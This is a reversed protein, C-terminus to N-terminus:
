RGMGKAVLVRAQEAFSSKAEVARQRVQEFTEEDFAVVIRRRGAYQEPAGASSRKTSGKGPAKM